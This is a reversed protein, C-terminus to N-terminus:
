IDIDTDDINRIPIPIMSLLCHYRYWRYWTDTDNIDSTPIPIMSIMYRCRYWTDTDTDDINLYRYWRYWIDTDDINDRAGISSFNKKVCSTRMCNRFNGQYPDSIIATRSTHKMAHSSTSMDPSKHQIKCCQKNYLTIWANIAIHMIMATPQTKM